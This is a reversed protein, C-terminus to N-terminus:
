AESLRLRPHESRSYSPCFEVFRISANLTFYFSPIEDDSVCYIALSYMRDRQGGTFTIQTSAPVAEEWKNRGFEPPADLRM